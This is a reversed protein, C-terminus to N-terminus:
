RTIMLPLGFMVCSVRKRSSNVPSALAPPQRDVPMRATLAMGATIAAVGPM